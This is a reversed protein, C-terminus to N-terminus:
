SRRREQIIQWRIINILVGVSCMMDASDSQTRVMGCQDLITCCRVSECANLAAALYYVLRM